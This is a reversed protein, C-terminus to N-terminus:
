GRMVQRSHEDIKGKDKESLQRTGLGFMPMEYGTKLTIAPIEM